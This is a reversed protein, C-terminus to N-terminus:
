EGIYEGLDRSGLVVRRQPLSYTGATGSVAAIDLWTPMVCADRAWVTAGCEV